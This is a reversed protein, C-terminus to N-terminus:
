STLPEIGRPEVMKNGLLRQNRQIKQVTERATGLVTGLLAKPKAGSARMERM